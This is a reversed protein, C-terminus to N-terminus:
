PKVGTNCTWQYDPQTGVKPCQRNLMMCVGCPLRYNCERVELVSSTQFDSALTTTEFTNM